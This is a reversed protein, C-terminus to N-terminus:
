NFTQVNSIESEKIMTDAIEYARAAAVEDWNKVSTDFKWDGACMGAMIRIAFEDRLTMIIGKRERM